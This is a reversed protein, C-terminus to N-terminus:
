LEVEVKKYTALVRRDLDVVCLRKSHGLVESPHSARGNILVEKCTERARNRESEMIRQVEGRALGLRL